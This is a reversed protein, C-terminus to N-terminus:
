RYVVRIRHNLTDAVYLNGARDFVIGTPRKLRAAGPAGGDGICAAETPPCRCPDDLSSGCKGCVGVV